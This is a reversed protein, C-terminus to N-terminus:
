ARPLFGFGFSGPGLYVGATTSMISVLLQVERAKAALELERYKPLQTIDKPNGAYALPLIPLRLGQDVVSIAREFIENLADQVGRAKTAVSTEVGRAHIIPKIDLAQGALYQLLGISKDGRKRARARMYYLDYPMVFAEVITACHRVEHVIEDFSAGQERMEVAAAVVAAQGAFLSNSDIVEIRDGANLLRRAETCHAHIHSRQSTITICLIREYRALLRRFFAATEQPTYPATEADIDKHELYTRYFRMALAPDRVDNAIEHGFRLHIPLIEVQNAEVYSKPLDCAADSVIAFSM